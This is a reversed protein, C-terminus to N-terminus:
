IVVSINGKGDFFLIIKESDTIINESATLATEFDDYLQQSFIIGKTQTIYAIRFGKKSGKFVNKDINFQIKM